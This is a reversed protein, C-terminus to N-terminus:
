SGQEQQLIELLRIDELDRPRSAIRKTLILDAITPMQVSVNAALAVPRRREWLHAFEVLQGDVTPASRAVVVDVREDNELAYRGTRRAEM